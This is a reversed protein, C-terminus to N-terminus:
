DIRNFHCDILFYFFNLLNIHHAILILTIVMNEYVIKRKKYFNMFDINLCKLALVQVTPCVLVDVHVKHYILLHM